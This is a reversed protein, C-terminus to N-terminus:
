RKDKAEKALTNASCPSCPKFTVQWLHWFLMSVIELTPFNAELVPGTAVLGNFVHRHQLEAISYVLTQNNLPKTLSAPPTITSM